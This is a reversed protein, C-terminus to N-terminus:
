EFSLKKDDFCAQVTSFVINNQFNLFDEEKPYNLNQFFKLHRKKLNLNMLRYLSKIKIKLMLTKPKSTKRSLKILM